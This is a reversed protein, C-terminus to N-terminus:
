NFKFTEVPESAKIPSTSGDILRSGKITSQMFNTEDKYDSPAYLNQPRFWLFCFFLIVLITPFTIVFWIFVSQNKDSLQPLVVTGCVEVLGAFIAIVTLPNDIRKYTM